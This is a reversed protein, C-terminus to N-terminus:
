SCSCPLSSKLKFFICSVDKWILKPDRPKQFSSNCQILGSCKLLVKERCVNRSRLTSFCLHVLTGRHGHWHTLKGLVVTWLSDWQFPICGGNINSIGGPAEGAKFLWFTPQSFPSRNNLLISCSQKATFSWFHKTCYSVEWVNWWGSPQISLSQIKM